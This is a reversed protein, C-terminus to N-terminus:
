YKLAKKCINKLKTSIEVIFIYLIIIAYNCMDCTTLFSFIENIFINLLLLELISGQSVRIYIDKSVSFRKNVNFKQMRKNLYSQIFTTSVLM